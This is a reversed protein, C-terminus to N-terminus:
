IFWHFPYKPYTHLDYHVDYHHATAVCWNIRRINFAVTLYLPWIEHLEMQGWIMNTGHYLNLTILCFHTTIVSYQTCTPYLFIEQPLLGTCFCNTVYEKLAHYLGMFFHFHQDLNRGWIEPIFCTVRRERYCFLHVRRRTSWSPEAGSVKFCKIKM